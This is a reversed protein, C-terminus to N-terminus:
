DLSKTYKSFPLAEKKECKGASEKGCSDFVTAKKPSGDKKNETNAPSKEAASLAISFAASMTIIAITMWFKKLM